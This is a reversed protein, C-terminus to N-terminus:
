LEVLAITRLLSFSACLMKGAVSQAGETLAVIGFEASLAGNLCLLVDTVQDSDWRGEVDADPCRTCM